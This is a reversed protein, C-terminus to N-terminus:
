PESQGRWSGVFAASRAYGHCEQPEYLQERWGERYSFVIYEKISRIPLALQTRRRHVQYLTPRGYVFALAAQSSNM